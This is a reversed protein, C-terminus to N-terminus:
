SRCQADHLEHEACTTNCLAGAAEEFCQLGFQEDNCWEVGSETRKETNHETRKKKQEEWGSDSSGPSILPTVMFWEQPYSVTHMHACAHKMPSQTIWAHPSHFRLLPYLFLPAAAAATSHYLYVTCPLSGRKQETGKRRRQGKPLYLLQVLYVAGGRLPCM